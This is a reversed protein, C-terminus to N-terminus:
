FRQNTGSGGLRNFLLRVSGVGAANAADLLRRCFEPDYFAAAVDVRSAGRFRAFITEPALSSASTSATSRATSHLAILVKEPAAESEPVVTADSRKRTVSGTRIM